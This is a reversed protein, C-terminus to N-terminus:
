YLGTYILKNFRKNHENHKSSEISLLFHDKLENIIQYGLELNLKLAKTNGKLVKAKLENFNLEKFYFDMMLVIALVPVPSNIFKPDGIIIGAEGIKLDWQINKINLVGIFNMQHYLEYYHQTHDLNDFWQIQNQITLDEQFIMKSKIEPSNRWFRLTEINDKKLPILKLNGAQIIRM